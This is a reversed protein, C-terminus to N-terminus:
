RGVLTMRSEKLVIMALFPFGGARLTQSVAYGEGSNMTCAWM